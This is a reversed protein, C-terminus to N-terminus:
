ARSRQRRASRRMHALKEALARRVFSQVYVENRMCFEKLRRATRLPIRTALQVLEEDHHAVVKMMRDRQQLRARPSDIVACPSRPPARNLAMDTGKEGGGGGVIKKKSDGRIRSRRQERIASHMAALPETATAPM